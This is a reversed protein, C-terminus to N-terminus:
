NKSEFKTSISCINLLIHYSSIILSNLLEFYSYILSKEQFINIYFCCFYLTPYYFVILAERFIKLFMWEFNLNKKGLLTFCFLILKRHFIFSFAIYIKFNRSEESFNQLNSRRRQCYWYIAEYPKCTKKM